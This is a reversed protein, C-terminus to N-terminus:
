VEISSNVTCQNRGNKKAKYLMDDAIKILDKYNFDDDPKDAQFNIHCIGISVTIDMTNNEFTYSENEITQRIREAIQMVIDQGAGTILISFEEGGYRGFTDYKRINKKIRKVTEILVFDGAQHGYEDNVKKFYDLDLMLFSIDENGRKCREYENMVTEIIYEHNYLDTLPDKVSKKQLMEEYLKNKYASQLRAILEVDEFPKKIYDNAGAELARRINKNDVDASLMIVPINRTAEM